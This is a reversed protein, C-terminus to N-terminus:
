ARFYVVLHHHLKQAFQDQTSNLVLRMYDSPPSYTRSTTTWLRSPVIQAAFQDVLPGGIMLNRNLDDCSTLTHPFMCDRSPKLVPLRMFSIAAYLHRILEQNILPFYYYTDYRDIYILALNDEQNSSSSFFESRSVSVAPPIPQCSTIMGSRTMCLVPSRFPLRCLLLHFSFSSAYIVKTRM